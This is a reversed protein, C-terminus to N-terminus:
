SPDTFDEPYGKYGMSIDESPLATRDTCDETLDTFDEIQTHIIGFRHDAFDEAVRPVHTGVDDACCGRPIDLKV